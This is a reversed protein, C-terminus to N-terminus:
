QNKVTHNAVKGNYKKKPVGQKKFGNGKQVMLDDRHEELENPMSGKAEVLMGM